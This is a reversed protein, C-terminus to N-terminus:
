DSEGEGDVVPTENPKNLNLAKATDIPSNVAKPRVAKIKVNRVQQPQAEVLDNAHATLSYRELAGANPARAGGSRLSPTAAGQPAM